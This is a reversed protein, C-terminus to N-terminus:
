HELIHPVGTSDDPPTRFTVGFCKNEDSNCVSLLEAGTADHRWWRAVGGVEALKKEVLLSFGHSKM